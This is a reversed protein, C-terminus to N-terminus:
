KLEGNMAAMFLVITQRLPTFSTGSGPYPPLGAGWYLISLGEKRLSKLDKTTPEFLDLREDGLFNSCLGLHPMRGTKICKKYFSLYKKKM